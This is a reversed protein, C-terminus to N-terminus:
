NKNNSKLVELHREFPPKKLSNKLDGIKRINRVEKNTERRSFNLNEKNQVYFVGNKLPSSHNELKYLPPKEFSKELNTSKEFSSGDFKMTNLSSKEFVNSPIIPQFVKEKIKEKIELFNKQLEVLKQEFPQAQEELSRSEHESCTEEDKKGHEKDFYTQFSDIKGDNREDFPENANIKINSLIEKFNNIRYSSISSNETNEYIYEGFPKYNLEKLFLAKLNSSEKIIIQESAYYSERLMDIVHIPNEKQIKLM